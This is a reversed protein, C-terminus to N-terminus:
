LRFYDKKDNYPAGRTASFTKGRSRCYNLPRRDKGYLLRFSINGHGTLSFKECELNVCSLFKQDVIFIIM